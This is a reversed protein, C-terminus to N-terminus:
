ALQRPDINLGTLSVRQHRENAIAITGGFGCGADLVAHGDRIEAVELFHESMREAAAVYDDVTGLALAPNDWYGWHWHRGFVRTFEPDGMELLATTKDLYPFAPIYPMTM